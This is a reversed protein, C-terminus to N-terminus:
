VLGSASKRNESLFIQSKLCDGGSAGLGDGVEEVVSWGKRGIGSYRWYERLVLAGVGLELEM